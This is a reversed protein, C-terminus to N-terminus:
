DPPAHDSHPEEPQDEDLLAKLELIRDMVADLDAQTATESQDAIKLASAILGEVEFGMQLAAPLVRLVDSTVSLIALPDM